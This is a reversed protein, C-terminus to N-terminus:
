FKLGLLEKMIYIYFSSGNSVHDGKREILTVKCGQKKFSEYATVSNKYPVYTDDKSHYLVIESKPTWDILSNRKMSELLKELEENGQAYVDDHLMSKISTTNLFKNIEPLTYQKSNYLEDYRSLIPEKFLKSFDLDLNDGYDLGIFLYPVSCPYGTYDSKIMDQYTGYLDYPGAGSYVKDILIDGAYYTEAMKQFALASFGGQSYGVVIVKNDVIKNLSELHERSAHLMDIGQIASSELHCYPHTLDSTAGFGIYDSQIVAYGLLAFAAEFTMMSESPAESNKSISFHNCVIVGKIDIDSPYTVTGSAIVENGHPDTSNYALADVTIKKSPLIPFMKEVLSRYEGPVLQLFDNNDLNITKTKEVLTKNEVEEINDHCASFFIALLLFLSLKILKM